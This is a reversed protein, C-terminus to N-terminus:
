KIQKQLLKNHANLFFHTFVEYFNNDIKESDNYQVFSFQFFVVRRFVEDGVRSWNEVAHASIGSKKSVFPALKNIGRHRAWFTRWLFLM